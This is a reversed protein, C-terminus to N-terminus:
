IEGRSIDASPAGVDAAILDAASLPASDWHRQGVADIREAIQKGIIRAAQQEAIAAPTEMAVPLGEAGPAPNRASPNTATEVELSPM